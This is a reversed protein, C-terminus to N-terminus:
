NQRRPMLTEAYPAYADRTYTRAASRQELMPPVDACHLQNGERELWGLRQNPLSVRSLSSRRAKTAGLAYAEKSHRPMLEAHPPWVGRGLCSRMELLWELASGLRKLLLNGKTFVAMSAAHFALLDDLFLSV